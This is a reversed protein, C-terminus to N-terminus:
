RPGRDGAAPPAPPGTPAAPGLQALGALLHPAPIDLEDPDPRWRHAPVLGPEALHVGSLQPDQLLAAIDQASRLYLPTPTRTFLDAAHRQAAAGNPDPDTTLHSVALYSGPTVADGITALVQALDIDPPLHHLVGLLLVAVPQGLDLVDNVVAHDLFTHPRRLDGVVATAWPLDHLHRRNVGTSIPDLDVYVLRARRAPGEAPTPGPGSPAGPDTVIDAIIEHTAGYQAVGGGVDLFQEVGAALLEQVVRRLLTRGAYVHERIEPWAREVEGALRRSESSNHFGGYLANCVGGVTPVSVSPDGTLWVESGASALSRDQIGIM